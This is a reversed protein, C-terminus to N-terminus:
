RQWRWHELPATLPLTYRTTSKVQVRRNWKERGRTTVSPTADETSCGTTTHHLGEHDLGQGQSRRDEAQSLHTDERKHRTSPLLSPTHLSPPLHPASLHISRRALRPSALGPRHAPPPYTALVRPFVCVTTTTTTTTPKKSAGNMIRRTGALPQYGTHSWPAHSIPLPAASRPTIHSLHGALSSGAPARFRGGAGRDVKNFVECAQAAPVLALSITALMRPFNKHPTVHTSCGSITLPPPPPPARPPQSLPTNSAEYPTQQKYPARTNFSHENPTLPTLTPRRPAM